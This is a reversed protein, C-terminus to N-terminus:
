RRDHRGKAVSGVIAHARLICVMTVQPSGSEQSGVNAAPQSTASLVHARLAYTSIVTSLGRKIREQDFTPPPRISGDRPRLAASARPVGSVIGLQPRRSPRGTSSASGWEVGCWEATWGDTEYVEEPRITPELRQGLFTGPGADRACTERGRLDHVARPGRAELKSGRKKSRRWPDQPDRCQAKRYACPCAGRGVWLLACRARAGPVSGSWGPILVPWGSNRVM